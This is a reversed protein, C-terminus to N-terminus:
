KLKNEEINKIIELILNLEFGKQSFHNKVKVLKKFKNKEVSKNYYEITKRELFNFYDTDDIESLGIKILRENIQRTKLGLKIKIKGWGNQNFKGRAYSKVFREENLYNNEILYLIISCFYSLYFPVLQFM